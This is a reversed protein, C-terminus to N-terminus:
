GNMYKSQRRKHQIMQNQVENSVKKKERGNNKQTTQRSPEHVPVSEHKLAVIPLTTPGDQVFISEHLAASIPLASEDQLSSSDHTNAWIPLTSEDQLSSSEHAIVRNLPTSKILEHLLSFEQVPASPFPVNVSNISQQLSTPCHPAPWANVPFSIMAAPQTLQM